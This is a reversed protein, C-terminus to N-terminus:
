RRGGPELPAFAPDWEPAAAKKRKAPAKKRPPRPQGLRRTVRSPAASPPPPPVWWPCSGCWCIRPPCYRGPAEPAWIADPDDWKSYGPQGPLLDYGM